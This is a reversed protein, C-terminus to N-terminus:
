GVPVIATPCFKGNKIVTLVFSANLIVYPAIKKKGWRRFLILLNLILRIPLAIWIIVKMVIRVFGSGIASQVIWKLQFTRLNLEQWIVM